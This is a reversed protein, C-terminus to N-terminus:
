PLWFPFSDSFAEHSGYRVKLVQSTWYYSLILLLFLVGNAHSQCIDYSCTANRFSVGVLALVWLLAWFNAVMAVAYALICVGSNRSLASLGTRLNAAAFPVRHWVSYAFLVTFLLVFLWVFGMVEVGQIFLSSVILGLWVCTVVLGHQIMHEAYRTMLELSAASFVLSILSTLLGLWILGSLNVDSTGDSPVYAPKDDNSVYTNTQQLNGIGWVLAVYIVVILQVVFAIAYPLDRFAATQTEGRLGGGPQLSDVVITGGNGGASFDEPGHSASMIPIHTFDNHEVEDTTLLKESLNSSHHLQGDDLNITTSNSAPQLPNYM